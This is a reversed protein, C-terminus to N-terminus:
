EGTSSLRANVTQRVKEIHAPRQEETHYHRYGLRRLDAGTWEELWRELYQRNVFHSDDLTDVLEPM